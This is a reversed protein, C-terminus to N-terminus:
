KVSRERRRGEIKSKKKTDKSREHTGQTVKIEEEKNGRWEGDIEQEGDGTGRRVKM